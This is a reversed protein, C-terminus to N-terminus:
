VYLKPRHRNNSAKSAASATTHSAKKASTSKQKKQKEKSQEASQAKAKGNHTTDKENSDENDDKLSRYLKWMAPLNRVLPGYQEIVPQIQSAAQIVSQTQNLINMIGSPQSAAQLLGNSRAAGEFGSATNAGRAGGKFLKSLLGGSGGPNGQGPQNKIRSLLGGTGRRSPNAGFGGRSAQNAGFGGRRLSFNSTRMNQGMQPRYMMYPNRGYLGRQGMMPPVQRPPM